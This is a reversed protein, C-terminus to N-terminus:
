PHGATGGTFHREIEELSKGRTEPTIRWFFITAVLCIAGFTFFGSHIGLTAVYWPFIFATM